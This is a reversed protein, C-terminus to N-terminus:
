RRGRQYWNKPIRGNSGAIYERLLGKVSESDIDADLEQTHMRDLISLPAMSCKHRVMTASTFQNKPCRTRVIFRLGPVNQFRM